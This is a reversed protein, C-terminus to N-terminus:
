IGDIVALRVKPTETAKQFGLLIINSAAPRPLRANSFHERLEDIAQKLFKESFGKPTFERLFRKSLFHERKTYLPLSTSKSHTSNATLYNTLMLLTPRDVYEQVDSYRLLKKLSYKQPVVKYTAIFQEYKLLLYDLESLHLGNKQIARGIRKREELFVTRGDSKIAKVRKASVRRQFARAVIPFSVARRKQGHKM